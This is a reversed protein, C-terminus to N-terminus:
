KKAYATQGLSIISHLGTKLRSAFAKSFIKLDINM